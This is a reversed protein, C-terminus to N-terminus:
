KNDSYIKNKNKYQQLSTRDTTRDEDWIVGESVLAVSSSRICSHRRLDMKWWLYPEKMALARLRGDMGFGGLAIKQKDDVDKGVKNNLV